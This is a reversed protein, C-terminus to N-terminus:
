ARYRRLWRVSVAPQQHVVVVLLTRSRDSLGVSGEFGPIQFAPLPFPMGRFKAGCMYRTSALLFSWPRARKSPPEVGGGDLSSSGAALSALTCKWCSLVYWCLVSSRRCAPFWTPMWGPANQGTPVLPPGWRDVLFTV